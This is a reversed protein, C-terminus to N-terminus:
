DEDVASREDVEWVEGRDKSMGRGFRCGYLIVSAKIKHLESSRAKMPFEAKKFNLQFHSRGM